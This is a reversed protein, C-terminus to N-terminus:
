IMYEPFENLLQNYLSLNHIKNYNLIIMFEEFDKIFLGGISFSECIQDYKFNIYKEYKDGSHGIYVFLKGNLLTYVDKM